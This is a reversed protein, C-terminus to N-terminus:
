EVCGQTRLTSIRKSSRGKSSFHNKKKKKKKLNVVYISEAFKQNYVSFHQSFTIASETVNALM